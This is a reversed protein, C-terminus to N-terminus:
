VSKTLIAVLLFFLLKSAAKLNLTTSYAVLYLYLHQYFTQHQHFFQLRERITAARSYHGGRSRSSFILLRPKQDLLYTLLIIEVKIVSAIGHFKLAHRCQPSSGWESGARRTWMSLFFPVCELSLGIPIRGKM